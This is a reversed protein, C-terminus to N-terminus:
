TSVATIAILSWFVLATVPEDSPCHNAHNQIAFWSFDVDNCRKPKKSTDDYVDTDYYEPLPIPTTTTTTTTDITTEVTTSSQNKRKQHNDFDNLVDNIWTGYKLTYLFMANLPQSSHDCNNIDRHVGIGYLGLEEGGGDARKRKSDTSPKGTSPKGNANPINDNSDVPPQSREPIKSGEHLKCLLPSGEDGYNCLSRGLPEPGTFCM